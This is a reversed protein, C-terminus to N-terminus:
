GSLLDRVDHISCGVDHIILCRSLVELGDLAHAGKELPRVWSIWGSTHVEIPKPICPQPRSSSATVLSHADREAANSSCETVFNSRETTSSSYEAAFKSCETASKSCVSATRSCDAADRNQEASNRNHDQQAAAATQQVPTVNKQIATM